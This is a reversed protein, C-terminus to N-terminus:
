GMGCRKKKDVTEKIKLKQVKIEEKAVETQEKLLRKTDKKFESMAEAQYHKIDRAMNAVRDENAKQLKRKESALLKEKNGVDSEHQARLKAVRGEHRSAQKQVAGIHKKALEKEEMKQKAKLKDMETDHKKGQLRMEALQQKM